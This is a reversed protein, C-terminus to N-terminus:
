VDSGLVRHCSRRRLALATPLFLRPPLRNVRSAILATSVATADTTPSVAALLFLPLLCIRHPVHRDHVAESQPSHALQMSMGLNPPGPCLFCAHELLFHKCSVGHLARLGSPGATLRALVLPPAAALVAGCAAGNRGRMMVTSGVHPEGASSVSRISIASPPVSAYLEGRTAASSGSAGGATAGTWSSRSCRKNSSSSRQASSSTCGARWSPSPPLAAANPSAVCAREPPKAVGESLACGACAPAAVGKALPMASPIPCPVLLASANAVITADVSSAHARKSGALRLKTSEDVVGDAAEDGGRALVLTAAGSSAKGHASVCASTAAVASCAVSEFSSHDHSASALRSSSNTLM